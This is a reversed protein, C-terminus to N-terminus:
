FIVKNLVIQNKKIDIINLPIKFGKKIHGFQQDIGLAKAGNSTAWKLIEDPKIGSNKMIVNMEDIISLNFNSALSDTGICINDSFSKILHVDPLTNEIFLNAHPCLCFHVKERYDELKDLHHQDIFTNHVLLVSNSLDLFKKLRTYFKESIHSLKKEEFNLKNIFYNKLESPQHEIINKEGESEMFHFSHVKYTTNTSNLFDFFLEWLEESLSYPSHPVISTRMKQNSFKRYLELASEFIRGANEENLGFIEVFNVYEIDSKIKLEFTDSTNVIDGVAVIGNEYMKKDWAQACDVIFKKEFLNRKEFM